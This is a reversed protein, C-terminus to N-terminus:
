SNDLQWEILEPLIDNKESRDLSKSNQIKDIIKLMDLYKLKGVSESIIRDPLFKYVASCCVYRDKGKLFPYDSASISFDDYMQRHETNIVLYKDKSVSICICHKTERNHIDSDKVNIVFVDSIEAM